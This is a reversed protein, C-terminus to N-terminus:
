SLLTIFPFVYTSGFFSAWILYTKVESSLEKWHATLYGQINPHTSSGDAILSAEIKQLDFSSKTLVDAKKKLIVFYSYKCGTTRKGTLHSRCCKDFATDDYFTCYERASTATLEDFFKTCYVPQWRLVPIHNENAAYM